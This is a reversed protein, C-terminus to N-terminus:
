ISAEAVKMSRVSYRYHRRNGVYLSFTCNSINAPKFSVLVLYVQTIISRLGAEAYYDRDWIDSCM